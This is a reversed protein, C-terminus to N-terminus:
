IDEMYHTLWEFKGDNLEYFSSSSYAYKNPDDVLQWHEQLPNLHIYNLKQELISRNYMHVFRSNEQWFQHKRNLRGVEYRKLREPSGARLENLFMHATFKMFSAAASEKGNNAQTCWILHIHNPMIVFGYVKITGKKVLYNLSDTIIKKYSDDRLLPIWNLITATYFYILDTEM